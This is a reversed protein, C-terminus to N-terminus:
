AEPKRIADGAKNAVLNRWGHLTKQHHPAPPNQEQSLGDIVIDLQRAVLAADDPKLVSVLAHLVANAVYLSDFADDMNRDLENIRDEESMNSEM